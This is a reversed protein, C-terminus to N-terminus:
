KKQKEEDRNKSLFWYERQADLDQPYDEVYAQMLEKAKTFDGSYEYAAILNSRLEQENTVEEMSLGKTFQAIAETYNGVEMERIGSQNCAVSSDPHEKIYADICSQASKEDGMGEYAQALFLNAQADGKEVAKALAEAAKPYEEKLLYIRGRVTYNEAKRGVKKELAEELYADAEKEYGAGDLSKYIVLYIADDKAYRVAQEYDSLAKESENSKLYVCGRLFYADSNQDDSEVIANYTEIADQYSGAAFQAAAKYYCIDIENAGLGKVQTLANNFAEMAKEYDGAEMAQIGITRYAEEKELREKQGACGTLLILAACVAAQALLSRKEKRM